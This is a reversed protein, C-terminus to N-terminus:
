TADFVLARGDGLTVVVDHTYEDQIVVDAIAARPTRAACFAVVDALTGLPAVDKALAALAGPALGSRDTLTLMRQCSPGGRM